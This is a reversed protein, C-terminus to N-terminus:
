RLTLVLATFLARAGAPNLSSPLSAPRVYCADMCAMVLVGCFAVACIAMLVALTGFNISAQLM